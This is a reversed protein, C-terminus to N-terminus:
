VYHEEGQEERRFVMAITDDFDPRASLAEADGTM